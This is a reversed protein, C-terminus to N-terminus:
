NGCLIVMGASNKCTTKSIEGEKYEYEKSGTLNGDKDYYSEVANEISSEGLGSYNTNTQSYSGDENYKNEQKSYGTFKGNKDMTYSDKSLLRGNDDYQQNNEFEIESERPYKWGNQMVLATQNYGFATESIVFSELNNQSNYTPNNSINNETKSYGIPILYSNEIPEDSIYYAFMDEGPRNPGKVGNVDFVVIGCLPITENDNTVNDELQSCNYVDTYNMIAMHAGNQLVYSWVNDAEAVMDPPLVKYKFCDDCAHSINFFDPNGLTNNCAATYKNLNGNETGATAKATCTALTAADKEDWGRTCSLSACAIGVGDEVRNLVSQINVAFSAYIKRLSTLRKSEEINTQMTPITIAAITGIVMMVTLVEPLSFGKRM